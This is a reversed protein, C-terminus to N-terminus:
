VSTGNLFARTPKTISFIVYGGFRGGQWPYYNKRYDSNDYKTGPKKSGMGYFMSKLFAAFTTKGWGNETMLSNMGERLGCKMQHLKGFNEIYCEELKM